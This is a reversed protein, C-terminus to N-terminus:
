SDQAVNLNTHLHGIFITFTQVRGQSRPERSLHPTYWHVRTKNQPRVHVQQRTGIAQQYLPRAQLSLRDHEGSLYNKCGIVKSNNPCVQLCKSKKIQEGVVKSNTPCIQLCKKHEKVTIPQYSASSSLVCCNDCHLLRAP